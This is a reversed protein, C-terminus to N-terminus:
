RQHQQQRAIQQCIPESKQSRAVERAAPPLPSWSARGTAQAQKGMTVMMAAIQIQGHIPCKAIRCVTPPTVLTQTPTRRTGRHGTDVTATVAYVADELRLVATRPVATRLLIVDAQSAPQNRLKQVSSCPHDGCLCIARWTQFSLRIRLRRIAPRARMCWKGMQISPSCLFGVTIGRKQPQPQRRADRWRTPLLKRQSIFSRSTATGKLIQGRTTISLRTRLQSCLAYVLTSWDRQSRSRPRVRKRRPKRWSNPCRGRRKRHKSPMRRTRSVQCM